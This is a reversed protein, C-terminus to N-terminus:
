KGGEIRAILSGAADRAAQAKTIDEGYAGAECATEIADALAVQCSKLVALLEPAAIIIAKIGDNAFDVSDDCRERDPKVTIVDAGLADMVVHRGGDTQRDWRWPAPHKDLISM